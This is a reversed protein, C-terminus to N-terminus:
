FSGHSSPISVANQAILFPSEQFDPANAGPM